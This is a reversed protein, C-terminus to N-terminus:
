ESFIKIIEDADAADLLRKCNDASALKRAMESLLRVHVGTKDADNVALLVVLKVPQDDVSEWETENELRGIAVTTEIVSPSKGHPIAIGNGIGTTSVSERDLVDKLFADKDSLKGSNYLLETLKELAEKKSKAVLNLDMHEAKLVEAVNMHRVGKM